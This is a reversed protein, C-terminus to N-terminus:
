NDGEQEPGLTGWTLANNIYKELETKTAQLQTELESKVTALETKTAKQANITNFKSNIYNTSYAQSDNEADASTIFSTLASTMIQKNYKGHIDRTVWYVLTENFSKIYKVSIVQDPQLLAGTPNQEVDEGYKNEIYNKVQIETASEFDLEDPYVEYDAVMKLSDGVAGRINGQLEWAGAAALKYLYGLHSEDLPINDENPNGNNLYYDGSKAEEVEINDGFQPGTFIRSGRPINIAFQTTTSNIPTATAEESGDEESGVFDIDLKFNPIKPIEVAWTWETNDPNESTDITPDIVKWDEGDREYTAEKTSINIDPVPPQFCGAYVVTANNGAMQTIKYLYGNTTRIYFDGVDAENLTIINDVPAAIGTHFKVARPLTFKIKPKNVDYGSENKDVLAAAPQVTPGVVTVSPQRMVQARPLEFTMTPTDIETNDIHVMPWQDADVVDTETIFQPTNGALSAILKYGLGYTTNEILVVNKDEVGDDIYVKQWLTANYTKNYKAVDPDKKTNYDNDEDNPLGYSVMVYDGIGIPSQWRLNLDDDLAVRNAFIEKIEFSSGAPGGYFSMM